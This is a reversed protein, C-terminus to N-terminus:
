KSRVLKVKFADVYDITYVEGELVPRPKSNVKTARQKALRYIESIEKQKMELLTPTVPGDTAMCRNDVSEIIKAIRQLKEKLTM